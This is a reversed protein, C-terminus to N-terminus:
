HGTVGLDAYLKLPDDSMRIAGDPSAPHSGISNPVVM